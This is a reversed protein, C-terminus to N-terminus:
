SGRFDPDRKEIFANIGEQGDHTHGLAIQMREEMDLHEDHTNRWAQWSLKRIDRLALTPGHALRHALSRAEAAFSDDPYVRNVLGWSLAQEASIKEGLMLMERARVTGVIRPLLWSQGADPSMGVKVFRATLYASRTLVILDGLLAYSLGMGVAAGNVATLLPIPLDRLRRIVPHHLMELTYHAGADSNGAARSQVIEQSEAMDGGSCFVRGAGTLLLCRAGAGPAAVRDLARRLASVMAPGMANRRAPNDMTFIAVADEIELRACGFDEIMARM